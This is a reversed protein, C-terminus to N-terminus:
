LKNEDIVLIGLFDLCRYAVNIDSLEGARLQELFEPLSKEVVEIFETDDLNLEAVKKCNRAVFVSRVMTTYASGIMKGVFTLEGSYGTEELLERAAAQLPEECDEFYGGPLEDVVKHPGPRFQRAILVKNDSTLAFVTAVQKAVIVDFDKVIGNPMRFDKKVITKHGKYVQREGVVTWDSIMM